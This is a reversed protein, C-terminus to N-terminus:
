IMQIIAFTGAIGIFIGLLHDGHYTSARLRGLAIWTLYGLRLSAFFGLLKRGSEFGTVSVMARILLPLNLVLELM